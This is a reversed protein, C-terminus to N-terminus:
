LLQRCTMVDGQLKWHGARESRNRRWQANVLVYNRALNHSDTLCLGHVQSGALRLSVRTPLAPSEGHATVVHWM